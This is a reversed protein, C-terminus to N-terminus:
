YVPWLGIHGKWDCSFVSSFDASWVANVLGFEHGDFVKLCHGTQADWIRATADYSASLIQKQDASWEVSRITKTHGEFVRM